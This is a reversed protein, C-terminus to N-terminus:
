KIGYLELLKEKSIVAEETPKGKEDLVVTFGLSKLLRYNDKILVSRGRIETLDGLEPDNVLKQALVMLGEKFSEIVERSSEFFTIPM